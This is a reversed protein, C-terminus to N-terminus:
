RYGQKYLFLALIFLPFLLTFIPRLYGKARITAASCRAEQLPIEAPSCGLLQAAANSLEGRAEQLVSYLASGGM